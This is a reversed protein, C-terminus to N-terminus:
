GLERFEISIVNIYEKSMISFFEIYVFIGVSESKKKQSSSTLIYNM